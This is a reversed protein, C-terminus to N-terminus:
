DFVSVVRTLAALLDADTDLQCHEAQPDTGPIAEERL